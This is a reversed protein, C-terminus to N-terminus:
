NRWDDSLGSLSSLWSELCYQGCLLPGLLSHAYVLTSILGHHLCYVIAVVRVEFFILGPERGMVDDEVQSEETDDEDDEEFEDGEEFDGEESEEWDLEEGEELNDGEVTEGGEMQVESTGGESVALARELKAREGALETDEDDVDADVDDVVDDQYQGENKEAANGVTWFVQRRVGSATKEGGTKAPVSVGGEVFCHSLADFLYSNEEDLALPEMKGTIPSFAGAMGEWVGALSSM